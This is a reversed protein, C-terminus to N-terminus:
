LVVPTKGKPAYSRGYHCDNSVATEDGWHIEAEEAQAREKITPYTRDLWEQVKNPNQEYARKIPRQPRFGWRHLHHNITRTPLTMEFQEKILGHIARRNGLAFPLKLRDPMKDRIMKQISKEQDPRLRRGSGIKHGPKKLDLGKLGHEKYINVWTGVSNRSVGLLGAVERRNHGQKFLEIARKRVFDLTDLKFTRGDNTKM